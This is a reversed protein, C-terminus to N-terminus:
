AFRSSHHGTILWRSDIEEFTFLFRAPVTDEGTRRRFRFTYIGGVAVTGRERDIRCEERNVTCTPGGDGLFFEFYRRRGDAEVIVENSLTPVLIADAAYLDLVAEIQGAVVAETWQKLSARAGDLAFDAGEGARESSIQTLNKGKYGSLVDRSIYCADLHCIPRRFWSLETGLQM